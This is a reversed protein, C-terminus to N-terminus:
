TDEPKARDETFNQGNLSLEVFVEVGAVASETASSGTDAAEDGEAEETAAKRPVDLPPMTFVVDSVNHKDQNAALLDMLMSLNWKTREAGGSKAGVGAGAPPLLMADLDDDPLCWGACRLFDRAQKKGLVGEKNVDLMEFAVKLDNPSTLAMKAEIGQPPKAGKLEGEAKRHAQYGSTTLKSPDKSSM